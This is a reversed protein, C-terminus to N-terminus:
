ECPTCTFRSDDGESDTSTYNDDEASDIPDNQTQLQRVNHRHLLAMCRTAQIRALNIMSRFTHFNHRPMRHQCSHLQTIDYLLDCIATNVMSCLSLRNTYPIPASGNQAEATEAYHQLLRRADLIRQLLPQFPLPVSETLNRDHVNDVWPQPEM